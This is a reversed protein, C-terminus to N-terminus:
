FVYSYGLNFMFPVSVPAEITGTITNNTTNIINGTFSPTLIAYRYALELRHKSHFISSFGANFVVEFGSRTITTNSDQQTVAPHQTPQMVYGGGLGLFLGLSLGDESSNYFDYLFDVNFLFEHSNNPSLNGIYQNQPDFKNASVMSMFVYHYDGKIRLGFDKHFYLVYGLSVGFDMIFNDSDKQINLTKIGVDAGIMFGTKTNKTIEKPTTPQSKGYVNRPARADMFGWVCLSALGVFLVKKVCNKM